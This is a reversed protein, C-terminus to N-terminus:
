IGSTFPYDYDPHIHISCVFVSPDDYFISVTGNGAHYDIDIVAVRDYGHRQLKKACIAAYNIFCFGGYQERNAHHGPHTTLAYALQHESERALDVAKRIVGAAHSQAVCSSREGLDHALASAVSPYIPTVRDSAFWTIRGLVSAGPRQLGDRPAIQPM